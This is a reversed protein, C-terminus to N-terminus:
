SRLLSSSHFSLLAHLQFRQVHLSLLCQPYCLIDECSENEKNEKYTEAIDELEGEKKIMQDEDSIGCQDGNKALPFM